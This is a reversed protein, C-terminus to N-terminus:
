RRLCRRRSRSRVAQGRSGQALGQRSVPEGSELAVLVPELVSVAEVVPHGPGEDPHDAPGLEHLQADAGAHVGFRDHAPEEPDHGVEESGVLRSRGFGGVPSQGQHGPQDGVAVSARGGEAKSGSPPRRGDPTTRGLQEGVPGSPGVVAHYATGFPLSPVAPGNTSPELLTEVRGGIMFAQGVVESGLNPITYTTLYGFAKVGAPAPLQVTQVQATSGPVASSVLSSQFQGYCTAFNPNLFPATLSQADGTTQMVTSQSVMQIGPDAAEQFSPSRVAATQGPVGALGFLGSVVVLPQGVCAALAQSARAQAAVPAVPPRATQDTTTRAWGAPLDTLRLNISAALASDAVTPSPSPAATPSPNPAGAPPSTSNNNRKVAFYAVGGIVVLLVVLLVALTARSSKRAPKASGTQVPAVGPPAPPDVAAAGVGATVPADVSTVGAASTTAATGVAATAAVGAAGVKGKKRWGRTKTPPPNATSPSTEDWLAAGTAPDIPPKWVVPGPAVTPEAPPPPLPPDIALPVPDVPPQSPPPMPSVAGPPPVTAAAALGAAVGADTASPPATKDKRWGRTKKAPAEPATASLSEPPPSDWAM